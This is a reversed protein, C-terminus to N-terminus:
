EVRKLKFNLNKGAMPHNVDVLITSERIEKITAPIQRGDALVMGVMMGEKIEPPFEKKQVEKTLAPNYEGYAEKCPIHVDKEEDVKMDKVADDFGKIVMGTGAEFELPEKGESSDFVTGDDLTGTYHIKVKMKKM